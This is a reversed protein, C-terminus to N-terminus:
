TSLVHLYAAVFTRLIKNINETTKLDINGRNDGEKHWFSPFPSPIIHLIPVNRRMFPIHDDEIHSDFSYPQFYKQERKGYSYSELKRLDALKEEINILLSYWKKTNEFYSYFAPDPAGILDLLILMDMKDLENIHDGRGNVTRKNHWKKALHKAGYISDDPGWEEFAEEGDFFIFMLSIDQEKIIQLSNNMVTALNIMQACPIASDTAGVFNRERTYKSDYHCALVLYRRANPNLRVIINEFELKGFLPTNAEFSDSEVTWGLASMSRKIYNKVNTHGPTGVIRVVCINDLIENMHTINTLDSLRAIQEITLQSSTHYYKESRFPIEKPGNMDAKHLLVIGILFVCLTFGLVGM